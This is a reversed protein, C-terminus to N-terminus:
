KQNQEAWEFLTLQRAPALIVAEQTNHDFEYYAGKGAKEVARRVRRSSADTLKLMIGQAGIRVAIHFRKVEKDEVVLVDRPDTICRSPENGARWNPKSTPKGEKDRLPTSWSQGPNSLDISRWVAIGGRNRVWDLFTSANKLECHLPESM